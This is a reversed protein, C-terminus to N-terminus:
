RVSSPHGCGGCSWPLDLLGLLRSYKWIDTINAYFWSFWHTTPRRVRSSWHQSKVQGIASVYIHSLSCYSYQTLYVFKTCNPSLAWRVLILGISKHSINGMTVTIIAWKFQRLISRGNINLINQQLHKTEMTVTACDHDMSVRSTPVTSHCFYGDGQPSPERQLDGSSHHTFCKNTHVTWNPKNSSIWQNWTDDMDQMVKNTYYTLLTHPEKIKAHSSGVQVAIFTNQATNM